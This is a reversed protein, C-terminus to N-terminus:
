GRLDRLDIKRVRWNAIRSLISFSVRCRVKLPNKSKDDKGPFFLGPYQTIYGPREQLLLGNPITAITIKDLPQGGDSSSSELNVMRYLPKILMVVVPAVTGNSLVFLPPLSSYFPHSSRKGTATIPRNSTGSLQEIWEGSGSIQNHSMVAHEQDDRPGASKIDVFLWCSQTLQHTIRGIEKHSLVFRQDSGTPLGFDRVNFVTSLLRPLKCGITHEGVEIWPYQDGIPQRGRKDPPYNQWFPYLYSAENYDEEIERANELVSKYLRLSVFNELEILCDPDSIFTQRAENYEKYQQPRFTNFM